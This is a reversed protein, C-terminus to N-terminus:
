GAHKDTELASDKNRELFAMVDQLKFRLRRCVRYVPLTRRDVMRYVTLKSIKLLKAVDTVDLMAGSDGNPITRNENKNLQSHATQPLENIM